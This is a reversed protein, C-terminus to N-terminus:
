VMAARMLAETWEREEREEASIAVDEPDVHIEARIQSLREPTTGKELMEMLTQYRTDKHLESDGTLGQLAQIVNRQWGRLPRSSAWISVWRAQVADALYALGAERLRPERLSGYVYVGALLLCMHLPSRYRPPRLQFRTAYFFALRAHRIRCRGIADATEEASQSRIPPMLRLGFHCLTAVQHHVRYLANATAVSLEGKQAAVARHLSLAALFRNLTLNMALGFGPRRSARIKGLSILLLPVGVILYFCIVTALIGLVMAAGVVENALALWSRLSDPYPFQRHLAAVTSGAAALLLLLGLVHLCLSYPWSAIGSLAWVTVGPLWSLVVAAVTAARRRWCLKQTCTVMELVGVMV